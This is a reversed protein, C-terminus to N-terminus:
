QGQVTITFAAQRNALVNSASQLGCYEAGGGGGWNFTSASTDTGNAGFILCQNLNENRLTYQNNGICTPTWVTPINPWSQYRANKIRYQGWGLFTFRWVAEGDSALAHEPNDQNGQHQGFGCYGNDGGAWLYRTPLSANISALCQSTSGNLSANQITGIFSYPLPDCSTSSTALRM